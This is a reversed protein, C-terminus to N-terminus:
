ISAVLDKFMAIQEKSSKCSAIQRLKRESFHRIEAPDSLSLLHQQISKDLKLLSM